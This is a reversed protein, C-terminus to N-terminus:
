KAKMLLEFVPPGLAEDEYDIDVFDGRAGMSYFGTPVEIRFMGHAGHHEFRKGKASLLYMRAQSRKTQPSLDIQVKVRPASGIKLLPVSAGGITQESLQRPAGTTDGNELLRRVAAALAEGDVDWTSLDAGRVGCYGSLATIL